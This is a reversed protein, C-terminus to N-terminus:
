IDEKKISQRRQGLLSQLFVSVDTCAPPRRQARGVVASIRPTRGDSGRCVSDSLGRKSRFPLIETCTQNFQEMLRKDIGSAL